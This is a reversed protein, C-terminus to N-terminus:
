FTSSSADSDPSLGPGRALADRVLRALGAIFPPSCDVTPVRAYFPVGAEKAVHRLEI